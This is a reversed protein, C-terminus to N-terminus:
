SDRGPRRIGLGVMRLGGLTLLVGALMSMVLLPVSQETLPPGGGSPVGSDSPPAPPGFAEGGTGRTPAAGRGTGTNAAGPVTQVAGDTQTAGTTNTGGTAPPTEQGPQTPQPTPTWGAPIPCPERSVEHGAADVIRAFDYGDEWLVFLSPDYTESAKWGYVWRGGIQEPVLPAQHGNQVEFIEGAGVTGAVSLDFVEGPQDSELKWGILDQASDGSNRIVIKRPHGQCDVGQPPIQINPAASVASISGGTDEAPPPQTPEPAPTQTPPPSPDPVPMPCPKNSVAGGTPDVLEIFDTGDEGLVFDLSGPNWPYIWEIGALEPTEPSGDGNFVYVTAGSELTGAPSLDFEEGPLDSRLRWGALDQASDGLNEIAIKRPASQCDVRTVQVDAAARATGTLALWACAAAVVAATALSRSRWPWSALSM